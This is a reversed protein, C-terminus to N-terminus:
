DALLGAKRLEDAQHRAFSTGIKDWGCLCSAPDRRQHITLVAVAQDPGRVEALAALEARGRRTLDHATM